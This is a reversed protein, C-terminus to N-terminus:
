RSPCVTPQRNRTTPLSCGSSPPNGVGGVAVLLRCSRKSGRPRGRAPPKADGAPKQQTPKGNPREPAEARLGDHRGGGSLVRGSPEDGPDARASRGPELDERNFRLVLTYGYYKSYKAVADSVEMYVQHYIASEQKLIDRQTSRRFAEFTATMEALEKEKADFDASTEKLQKMEEQLNKVNQAMQKAQNESEAIEKKLDERLSDFKRYNKFVHAMDILGVMHPRAEKGPANGAAPKAGQSWAATGLSLFGAVVAVASASQIFKKM